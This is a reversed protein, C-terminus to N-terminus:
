RPSFVVRPLFRFLGAMASFSRTLPSRSRSRPLSVVLGAVSLHRAGVAVALSSEISDSHHAAAVGSAHYSRAFLIAVITIDDDNPWWQTDSARTSNAM